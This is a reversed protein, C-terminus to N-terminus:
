TSLGRGCLNTAHTARYFPTLPEAVPVPHGDLLGQLYAINCRLIEVGGVPGHAPAVMRVSPDNAWRTLESVWAALPSDPPVVPFPTEATDGALLLGREPVFGVISDPTHGPLHHLHLTLGGLDITTAAEFVSTPPVLRVADYAGPEAQQKERLAHPVDGSFRDLCSAHSLIPTGDLPLGATGWVHDWDAHSYVVSLPRDGIIPLWDAMDRPHSLTDWVVARDRGTLLFGRVDFDGLVVDAYWIGDGLAHPTAM